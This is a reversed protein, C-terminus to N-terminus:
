VYLSGILGPRLECFFKLDFRGGLVRPNLERGMFIDEVVTNGEAATCLLASSRHSSLWRCVLTCGTLQPSPQASSEM